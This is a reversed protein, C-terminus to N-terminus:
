EDDPDDPNEVAAGAAAGAAEQEAQEKAHELDFRKEPPGVWDIAPFGFAELSQAPDYGVRVLGQVNLADLRRNQGKQQENPPVPDVYNFHYDRGLRGFQPLFDDNLMTRWRNLRPVLLRQAYIVLGADANARNVDEVDGLMPKPYRWATRFSEKSFRRLQEFQMDRMSYRRDKWQGMEVVAVKHANEVGRHQSNWHEQLKEFEPDSLLEPVEIIGGPEAGNRFFAANWEAAAKEGEIDLIMSGIPGLGRYMDKPNPRKMFIVDSLDLPIRQNGQKYLYGAIFDRPHPVPMMRDPRVPWLELPPAEPSPKVTLQWQEGVLEFHQQLSEVYETRTYFPNPKKWVSLAPHKRVRASEDEDSPVEAVDAGRYLRWGVAAVDTALSDVIAFLTTAQEMSGLQKTRSDTFPSAPSFIKDRAYSVPTRNLVAGVISKM